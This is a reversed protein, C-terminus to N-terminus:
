AMKADRPRGRPTKRQAMREMLDLVVQGCRLAFADDAAAREKILELALQGTFASLLLALHHDDRALAEMVLIHARASDPDTRILETNREYEAATTAPLDHYLRRIEDPTM